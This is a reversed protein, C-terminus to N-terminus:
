TLHRRKTGRLLHKDLFIVIGFFDAITALTLNIAECGVRARPFMFLELHIRLVTGSFSM